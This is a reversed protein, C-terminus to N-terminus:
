VHKKFVDKLRSGKRGNQPFKLSFSLSPKNVSAQFQPSAVFVVSKEGKGQCHREVTSPTRLVSFPVNLPFDKQKRYFAREGNRQEKEKEGKTREVRPNKKVVHKGICTRM